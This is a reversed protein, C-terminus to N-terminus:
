KPERENLPETGNEVREWRVSELIYRKAAEDLDTGAPVPIGQIPPTNPDDVFVPVDSRQVVTGTVRVLGGDDGGHYLDSPWHTAPLDVYIGFGEGLLYAGIKHNVAKGSVTVTNGLQGHWGDFQQQSDRTLNHTTKSANAANYVRTSDPQSSSRCGVSVFLLVALPLRKM